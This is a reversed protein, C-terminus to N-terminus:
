MQLESVKKMVLLSEGKKELRMFWRALRDIRKFYPPMDETEISHFGFKEYFPGLPSRCVLYLEGAYTALLQRIVASAISQRRWEPVVAISALENSGDQHPKIQGCGIVQDAQDVAVLFRRWDLGTPNIGVQRILKRIAQDDTSKAPRITYM